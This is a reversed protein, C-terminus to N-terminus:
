VNKTLPAVVTLQATCQSKCFGTTREETSKRWMFELGILSCSLFITSEGVSEPGSCLASFHMLMTLNRAKPRPWIFLHVVGKVNCSGAAECPKKKVGRETNQKEVHEFSSWEQIYLPKEEKIFDGERARLERFYGEAYVLANGGNQKWYNQQKKILICIILMAAATWITSAFMQMCTWFCSKASKYIKFFSDIICLLHRFGNDYPLLLSPFCVFM